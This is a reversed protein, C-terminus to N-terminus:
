GRRSGQPDYGLVSTARVATFRWRHLRGRKILWSVATEEAIVLLLGFRGARTPRARLVRRAAAARERSRESFEGTVDDLRELRVGSGAVWRSFSDGDLGRHDIFTAFVRGPPELSRAVSALVEPARRVFMLSDLAYAASGRIEVSGLEGVDFRVAASVGEGAARRRADAIARPSADIGVVQAGTRRHVAIAVEGVGCGVDVVVDRPSPQLTELLATLDQATAYGHVAPAGAACASELFERGAPTALIRYSLGFYRAIVADRWSDTM